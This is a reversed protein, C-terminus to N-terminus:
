LQDAYRLVEGAAFPVGNRQQLTTALDDGPIFDSVLFESDGEAFYNGVIPLAPHRLETLRRAEREFAESRAAVADEGVIIQKLAVNTRTILDTAEYVVGTGGGLVRVILYRNRVFANPALM